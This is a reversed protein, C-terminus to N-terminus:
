TSVGFSIDNCICICTCACMCVFDCMGEEIWISAMCVEVTRSFEDHVCHYLQNRETCKARARDSWDRFTGPCREIQSFDM